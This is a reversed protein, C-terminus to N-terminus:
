AIVDVAARKITRDFTGLRAAHQAALEVLYLDTVQESKKPHSALAPLDDAIREAKRDVAFQELLRRAQDM